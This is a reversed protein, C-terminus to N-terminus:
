AVVGQGLTAVWMEGPPTELLSTIQSNGLLDENAAVGAERMEVAPAEGNDALVFVGDHKGGAWIRGASDQALAQPQVVRGVALPVAQLPAGAAARRFLGAASGIWLQGRRDLLLTWVQTGAGAAWGGVTSAREIRGSDPDLHDLGGDTVVWLGGAGDDAIQRVSVHSLGAAGGVPIAVFRDTTPDHRLLGAASTGVWLRGKADGHLSQVYNDPLAGPRQADAKYVKFHYGDWRALGGLTGVWLFGQGDEAVATAIANPLGQEQSLHQFSIDALSSWRKPAPAATAETLCLAMVLCLAM